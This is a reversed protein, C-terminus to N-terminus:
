VAGQGPTGTPRPNLVQVDIPVTLKGDIHVLLEAIAPSGGHATLAGESVWKEVMVLRDRGEHLAYLECGLDEAHVRVIAHELAAIVENRWATQPYITAVVVVSM